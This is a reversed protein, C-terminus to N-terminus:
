TANTTHKKEKERRFISKHFTDKQRRIQRRPNMATTFTTHKPSFYKKSNHYLHHVKQFEKKSNKHYAFKPM